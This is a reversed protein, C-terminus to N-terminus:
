LGGTDHQYTHICTLRFAGYPAFVATEETLEIETALCINSRTPNQHLYVWMDDILSSLQSDSNENNMFYTYFDVKLRSICQDIQSKIRGSFKNNVVPLRGVIAVVPFQTIAYEQLDSYSQITRVTTTIAPISQVIAIDALIIRERFSNEAM